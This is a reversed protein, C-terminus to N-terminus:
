EHNQNKRNSIVQSFKESATFGLGAMVIWQLSEFMHQEVAYDFFLNSTFAILMFLLCIVTVVRKSSVEGGSALMAKCFRKM